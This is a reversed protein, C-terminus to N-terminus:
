NGRNVERLVTAADEPLIPNVHNGTGWEYGALQTLRPLVEVHWHYYAQVPEHFPATHLVLNFAPEDLAADLKRLVTWLIAGLDDVETSDIRDMRSQHKKPVLWTEFPQRGAYATFALFTDTEFVLRAGADNERRLLECYVCANQREFYQLAYALEERIVVPILPTAILQSHAHEVSAGADAGHNKFIQAYKLQPDDCAQRMREQWAHMVEQVQRCDLRGLNSEHHPCEIFLEHRGIAGVSTYFGDGQPVSAAVDKVAAFSNPVVRVRWGEDDPGSDVARIELLEPPTLHENGACFPCPENLQCKSIRAKQIMPRASREPAIIVWAGTTPNMRWEPPRGSHEVILPHPQQRAM